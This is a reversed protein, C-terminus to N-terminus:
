PAHVMCGVLSSVVFVGVFMKRDEGKAESLCTKTSSRPTASQVINVCYYEYCM